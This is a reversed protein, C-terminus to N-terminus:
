RAAKAKIEAMRIGYERAAYSNQKPVTIAEWM